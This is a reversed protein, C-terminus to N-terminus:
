REVYEVLKVLKFGGTDISEVRVRFEEVEDGVVIVEVEINEDVVVLKGVFEAVVEFRSVDVVVNEVIIGDVGIIVDGVVLKSVLEV